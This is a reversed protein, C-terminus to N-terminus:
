VTKKPLYGNYMYKGIELIYMDKMKLIELQKFIPSTHDNYKSGGVIRVAKKQMVELKKTYTSHTSGWLTIGYNMYPYVMSYYLTRLHNTRLFIQVNRLAYYQAM